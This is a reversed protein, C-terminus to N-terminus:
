HLNISLSVMIECFAKFNGLLLYLKACEIMRDEKKSLPTGLFAFPTTTELKHIREYYNKIINGVYNVDGEFGSESKLINSLM